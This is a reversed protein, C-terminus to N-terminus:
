SEMYNCGKMANHADLSDSIIVAWWLGTVYKKLNDAKLSYKKLNRIHWMHRRIARREEPTLPVGCREIIEVSRSGHGHIEDFLNRAKCVDHLLGVIVVSDKPLCCGVKRMNRYVGLCHQAIGGNWKHHHSGYPYGYYFTSHELRGILNEMGPRKVSKLAAEIEAKNREIQEGSLGDM